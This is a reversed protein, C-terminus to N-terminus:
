TKTHSMPTNMQAHCGDCLRAMLFVCLMWPGSAKSVAKSNRVGRNSSEQGAIVRKALAPLKISIKQFIKIALIVIILM